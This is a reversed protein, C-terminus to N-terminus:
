PRQDVSNSFRVSLWPAAVWLVLTGVLALAIAWDLKSGTYEAVADVFPTMVAVWVFWAGIAAFIGRRRKPPPQRRVIIRVVAVYIAGVLVLLLIV